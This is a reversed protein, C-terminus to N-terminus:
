LRVGISLSMNTRGNGGGGEAPFIAATLTPVGTTISNATLVHLQADFFYSWGVQRRWPADKGVTPTVGPGLPLFPVSSAMRRKEATDLMGPSGGGGSGSFLLLLTM